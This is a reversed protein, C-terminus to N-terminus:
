TEGRGNHLGCDVELVVATIASAEDSALFLAANAIDIPRVLRGLPLDSAIKKLVGEDYKKMFKPLMPTETPGPLIVNVRIKYPALENALVKTLTIAGGKSAAYVSSGPRPMIGAISATNLIVGNGANKLENLAHKAGLFIAKLNIDMIRSWEEDGITEFPKTLQPCGANNFLINLKGYRKVTMKVMNEIENEISVDAKVFFADGGQELIEKATKEGNEANIDAVAVKAGEQAFRIASARGMGSGAGTIIAVKDALRM